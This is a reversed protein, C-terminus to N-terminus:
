FLVVLDAHIAMDSHKFHMHSIVNQKTTSRHQCYPCGYPREGTHRRFHREFNHKIPTSYLCETCKYVAQNVVYSPTNVVAPMGLPDEQIVHCLPPSPSSPAQNNNNNDKSVRKLTISVDNGMGDSAVMIENEAKFEALQISKVLHKAESISVSHPNYKYEHPYHNYQNPHTPDSRDPLISAVQMYRILM